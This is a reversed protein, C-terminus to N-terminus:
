DHTWNGRIPHRHCCQPLHEVFSVIKVPNPTSLRQFGNSAIGSRGRLSVLNLPCPTLYDDVEIMRTTGGCYNMLVELRVALQACASPGVRFIQPMLARCVNSIAM